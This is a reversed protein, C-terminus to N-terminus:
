EGDLYGERVANWEDELIAVLVSRYWKGDWWYTDRVYGDVKFGFALFMQLWEDYGEDLVYSEGRFRHLGLERFTYECLLYFTHRYYKPTKYEEEGIHCSIEASRNKWDINTVGCVGIPEDAHEIIFMVNKSDILSEFWRKQNEMSLPRYERMRMRLGLTNRWDRLKVLDTQEIPRFSVEKTSLFTSM